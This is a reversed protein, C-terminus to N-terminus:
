KPIGIKLGKVDGSLLSAYDPVEQPPTTMDNPDQGAMAQLVYALDEATKAIPGITDWSSAFATVGSRSVRGYTVKLGSVSCFSAPQRISGGTDTGIAFLCTDAAVAAVSGGSSGGAVRELDWPNKTYGFCSHETSAGCAFEDLNTKGLMVMGAEKLKKVATADYPPVFDKLGPSCVTTKVGETNLIDKIGAPIGELIGIGKGKAIKADVEKAAKIAVDETVTVYANLDGNVEKTRELCAQALEEASFKKTKLGEHAQKITQTFLTM